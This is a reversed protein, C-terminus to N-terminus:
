CKSVNSIKQRILLIEFQIQVKLFRFTEEFYYHNYAVLPLWISVNESLISPKLSFCCNWLLSVKISESNWFLNGSRIKLPGNLFFGNLGSSVLFYKYRELVYINPKSPQRLSFFWDRPIICNLEFPKSIM